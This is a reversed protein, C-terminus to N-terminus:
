EPNYKKLLTDETEISITLYLATASMEGVKVLDKKCPM